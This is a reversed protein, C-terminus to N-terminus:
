KNKSRFPSVNKKPLKGGHFHMKCLCKVMGLARVIHKKRNMKVSFLKQAFGKTPQHNNNGAPSQGGGGGGEYKPNFFVDSLDGGLSCMPMSDTFHMIFYPFHPNHNYPSFREDWWIEDVM